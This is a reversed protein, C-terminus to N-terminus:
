CVNRIASDNLTYNTSNILHPSLFKDNDTLTELGLLDEFIHYSNKLFQRITM